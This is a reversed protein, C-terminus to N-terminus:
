YYMPTLRPSQSYHYLVHQEEYDASLTTIGPFYQAEFGDDEQLWGGVKSKEILYKVICNFTRHWVLRKFNVFSPKKAHAM